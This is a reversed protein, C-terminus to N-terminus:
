AAVLWSARIPQFPLWCRQGANGSHLPKTLPFMALPCSCHQAVSAPIAGPFAFPIQQSPVTCVSQWCVACGRAPSRHDTPALAGELTAILAAMAAKGRGQAGPKNGAGVARPTSTLHRHQNEVLANIIASSLHSIHDLHARSSPLPDPPDGQCSYRDAYIERLKLCRCPQFHGQGVRDTNPSPSGHRSPHEALLVAGYVHQSCVCLSTPESTQCPMILLTLPFEQRTVRSYDLNLGCLM